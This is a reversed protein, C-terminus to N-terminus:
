YSFPDKSCYLHTAMSTLLPLKKSSPVCLSNILDQLFSWQYLLCNIYIHLVSEKSFVRIICFILPLLLLPHPHSPQIADGVQHVHTQALEPLQHYVPFGPMSCDMPNCLTLCPQAVSSVSFYKLIILAQM